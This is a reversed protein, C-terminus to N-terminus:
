TTLPVVHLPQTLLNKLKTLSAEIASARVRFVYDLETAGIREALFIREHFRAVHINEKRVHICAEEFSLYKGYAYVLLASEIAEFPTLGDILIWSGWSYTRENPDYLRVCGLRKLNKDCIIFYAQNTSQQYDRIWQVQDELKASVASLHKNKEPNQRLSFIFEADDLTIDRLILSSGEVRQARLIQPIM